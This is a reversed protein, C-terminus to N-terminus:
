WGLGISFGPAPESYYDYYCNNYYGNNYPWYGNDYCSNYDPEYAYLGGWGGGWGWGGGNWHRHHHGNWAYRGYAGHPGRAFHQHRGFASPAVNNRAFRHQTTMSNPRFQGAAANGAASMQPAAMQPAAMRAGHGGAFGGPAGGGHGGHGGHMPAAIAGTVGLALAAATTMLIRRM